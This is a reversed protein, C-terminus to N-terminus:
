SCPIAVDFCVEHHTLANGWGSTAEKAFFNEQRRAAKQLNPMPNEFTSAELSEYYSARGQQIWALSAIENGRAKRLINSLKPKKRIKALGRDIIIHLVTTMSCSM